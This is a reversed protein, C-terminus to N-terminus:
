SGEPGSSLAARVGYAYFVYTKWKDDTTLEREEVQIDQFNPVDELNELLVDLEKRMEPTRRRVEATWPFDEVPFYTVRGNKTFLVVVLEFCRIFL